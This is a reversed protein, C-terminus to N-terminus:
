MLAPVHGGGIPYQMQDVDMSDENLVISAYQANDRDYEDLNLVANPDGTGSWDIGNRTVKPNEALINRYLLSIDIQTPPNESDYGSYENNVYYGITVFEQDMYLCSVLIVTVGILDELAILNYNPAPAQLVFRNVGVLVPGVM